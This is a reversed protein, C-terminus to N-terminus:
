VSNKNSYYRSLIYMIDLHKNVNFMNFTSHISIIGKCTYSINRYVVYGSKHFLGYLVSEM